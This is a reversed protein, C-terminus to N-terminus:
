IYHPLDAKKYDTKLHKLVLTYQPIKQKSIKLFPWKKFLEQILGAERRNLATIPIGSHTHKPHPTETNKLCRLKRSLGPMTMGKVCVGMGMRFAHVCTTLLTGLVRGKGDQRALLGIRTAESALGSMQASSDVPGWAASQTPRHM